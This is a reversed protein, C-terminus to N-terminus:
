RLLIMKKSSIMSGYRLYYVYIGSSIKTADFMVKYEGARQQEDILTTVKQGLINFVTLSVQLGKAHSTVAQPISYEISTVPNFPNPYNQYLKFGSINENEDFGTITISVENSPQSENKGYDFATVAFYTSEILPENFTIEVSTGSLIQFKLTNRIDGIDVPSNKDFYLTYYKVTDLQSNLAPEEWLFTYTLSDVTSIELNRPANTSVSDKWPMSPIHAPYRYQHQQLSDSLGKYNRVIYDSRFYSQGNNGFYRSTDVQFMIEETPWNEESMKYIASALYIHRGSESETGVNEPWWQATRVYYPVGKFQWYTQPALYDHIKMDIWAKSDQFLEDYSSWGNAGPIDKYIGIPASGVKMWPKIAQISDYIEAVFRNINERRWDDKAMGNGHLSYSESDDFDAGPYRIYDFHIADIDYGRIMELAVNVLYTNTEPYGPDMYYGENGYLKCLEKHTHLLHKPTTVPPISAGYAKYVVWWAHLEMGRKHAEEIVFELPDYGPDAGLQGTLSVAWPEVVSPYMLDGRTRVQFYITNINAKALGDLHARLANKQPEAGRISKPWDLGWATTLWVARVEEKPQAYLFSQFVLVFIVIIYYKLVLFRSIKM